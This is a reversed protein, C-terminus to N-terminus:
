PAKRLGRRRILEQTGIGKLVQAEARDRALQMVRQLIKKQGEKSANRFAERSTVTPLQTRLFEGAIREFERQEEPTLRANRLEKPPNGIDIGADLLTAIVPDERIPSIRLPQFAAAGVQVNPIPEGTPAQAPPVSERAGPFRTALSQRVYEPLGVESVRGPSRQYPDMAQGVTAVASGFPVLSNVFGTLWQAGYRDPDSIAKYVAGIGQLYTQETVIQAFRRFTDLARSEIDGDPAGYIGAEALSGVQAFPVSLPGWNAYSVWSDGIKVSYPRWGTARLMDRKQPDDPGAASINGQTAYGYLGAALITGMVNDGLREGLPPAARPVKGGRYAGRLVDAGTAVLGLPSREVGRATIHYVTRLFPLLVNGIYPVQQISALANGLAGMEGKFTMREAVALSAKMMGEDPNALIEAVRRSWADGKLGESTARLAAQRGQQMEFAIAKAWEDVAANFRSPLELAGAVRQAIPNRVRPAIGTPMDGIAAQEKTVGHSLVEAFKQTGKQLGAWMGALEPVVEGPHGRFTSAGFDRALRWPIELANGVLNIELTRPGSMMSNYRLTKFWDEFGVPPKEVRTWFEAMQIPGAGSDLLQQYEEVAKQANERGGLKKYIREINEVPSAVNRTAARWALGARGWEARAGEAVTVLAQLKEGETMVQALLADTVQGTQKAQAYQRTLNNVAETQATITNRLARIEETNYSKGAKGEQIWQEIPRGLEDAMQESVAVPLVGRRQERAFGINEASQQITDRAWDPFKDLRLRSVEEEATLTIPKAGEPLPAAKPLIPPKAGGKIPEGSMGMALNTAGLALRTTWKQDRGPLIHEMGEAVARTLPDAEIRAQVDEDSYPAIIQGVASGRAQEVIGEGVTEGIPTAAKEIMGQPTWQRAGEALSSIGGLAGGLGSLLSRGQEIWSNAWMQAAKARQQGAWESAQDQRQEEELADEPIYTMSEPITM